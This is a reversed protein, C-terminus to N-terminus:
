HVPSHSSCVPTGARTHPSPIATGPALASARTASATARRSSRSCSANRAGPVLSSCQCSAALRTWPRPSASRVTLKVWVTSPTGTSPPPTLKRMLRSRTITSPEDARGPAVTVIGARSTSPSAAVAAARAHIARAYPAVGTTRLRPASITSGSTRSGTSPAGAISYRVARTISSSRARGRARQSTYISAAVPAGIARRCVSDNAVPVSCYSVGTRWGAPARCDNGAARAAIVTPPEGVVM